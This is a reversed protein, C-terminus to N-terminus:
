KKTIKLIVKKTKVLYTGTPLNGIDFSQIGTGNNSIAVQKGEITYLTATDQNPIYLIGDQSIPKSVNANDITSPADDNSIYFREIDSFRYTNTEVVVNGDILHMIASQTDINYYAETGDTLVLVLSKAHISPALWACVMCAVLIKHKLKM